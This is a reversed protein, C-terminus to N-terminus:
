KNDKNRRNIDDNSSNYINIKFNSNKEKDTNINSVNTARDNTENPTDTDNKDTNIQLIDENIPTVIEKRKKNENNWEINYL